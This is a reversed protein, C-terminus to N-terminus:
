FRQDKGSEKSKRSCKRRTKLASTSEQEKMQSIRKLMEKAEFNESYRTEIVRYTEIAGTLDGNVFQVKARMLLEQLQAQQEKWDATYETIDRQFPDKMDDELKEEEKDALGLEKEVANAGRSEKLGPRGYTLTDGQRGTRIFLTRFTDLHKKAADWDKRERM